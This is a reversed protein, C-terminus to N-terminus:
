VLKLLLGRDILTELTITHQVTDPRIEWEALYESNYLHSDKFHLMEALRKASHYRSQDSPLVRIFVICITDAPEKARYKSLAIHLVRILSTTVSVLKTPKTSWKKCHSKFEKCLDSESLKQNSRGRGSVLKGASKDSYCRFYTTVPEPCLLHINPTHYCLEWHM